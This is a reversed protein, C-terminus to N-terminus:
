DRYHDQGPHDPSSLALYARILIAARFRVRERGLAHFRTGASQRPAQAYQMLRREKGPQGGICNRLDATEKAFLRKGRALRDVCGTIRGDTKIHYGDTLHLEGAHRFGPFRDNEPNDARALKEATERREAVPGIGIGCHRV